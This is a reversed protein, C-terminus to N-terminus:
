APEVAPQPVAPDLHLHLFAGLEKLVPALRRAPRGLALLTGPHGIGAYHRERVMCGVVNLRRALAMTNRPYVLTDKDGTALFMPPASPSVFHIPQTTMPERVAGFTRLTIPGDFPFFDYPGSLGVVCRISGLLGSRALLGPDLALMAANYAGASHGMLAIRAPDGGHQAIHSVVWQIAQVGDDLFGPYEAEPVLRYDAIVTVFGLAAVARGVFDYDKRSGDSWSGGYIFCVVPWGGQPIPKDRPTYIDLKHRDGAGYALDRAAKRSGADKPSLFNIISLIPFAM